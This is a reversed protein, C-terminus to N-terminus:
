SDLWTRRSSYALAGLWLTREETEPECKLHKTGIQFSWCTSGLLRYYPDARPTRMGAWGGDTLFPVWWISEVGHHEVWAGPALCDCVSGELVMLVLFGGGQTMETICVYNICYMTFFDYLNITLKSNQTWYNYSWNSIIWKIGIYFQLNTRLLSLWPLGKWCKVTGFM